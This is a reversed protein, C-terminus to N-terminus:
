VGGGGGWCVVRYFVRERCSARGIQAAPLVAARLTVPRLPLVSTGGSVTRVSVVITAWRLADRTTALPPLSTEAPGNEGLARWLFGGSFLQDLALGLTGLAAAIPVSLAILLLPRVSGAPLRAEVTGRIAAPM